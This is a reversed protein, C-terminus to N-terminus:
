EDLASRLPRPQEIGSPECRNRVCTRLASWLDILPCKPTEVFSVLKSASIRRVADVFAGARVERVQDKVGEVRGLELTAARRAEDPSLGAQTKEDVHLEFAGRIEADLDREVRERCALNRWLSLLRPIFPM